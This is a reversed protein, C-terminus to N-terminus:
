WNWTKAVTMTLPVGNSPSVLVGKIKVMTPLYINIVDCRVYYMLSWMHGGVIASVDNSPSPLLGTLMVVSPSYIDNARGRM